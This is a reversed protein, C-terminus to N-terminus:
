GCPFEISLSIMVFCTFSNLFMSVFGDDMNIVDPVKTDPNLTLARENSDSTIRSQTGVIRM